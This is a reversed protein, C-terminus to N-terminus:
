EDSENDNQIEGNEENKEDYNELYNMFGRWLWALIFGILIGLFLIVWFEALNEEFWATISDALTIQMIPKEDIGVM